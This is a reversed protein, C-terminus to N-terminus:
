KGVVRAWGRELVVAQWVFLLGVAPLMYRVISLVL